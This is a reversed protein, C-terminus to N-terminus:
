SFLRILRFGAAQRAQRAKEISTTQENFLLLYTEVAMTPPAQVEKM